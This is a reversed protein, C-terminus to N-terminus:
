LVDKRRLGTKFHNFDDLCENESQDCHGGRPAPVLRCLPGSFACLVVGLRVPKSDSSFPESGQCTLLPDLVAVGKVTPKGSLEVTLLLRRLEELPAKAVFVSRGECGPQPRVREVIRLRWGTRYEHGIVVVRLVLLKKTQTFLSRLSGILTCFGSLVSVLVHTDCNEQSGHKQDGCNSLAKM